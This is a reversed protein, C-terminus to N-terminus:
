SRIRWDLFWYTDVKIKQSAPLNIKKKFLSCHTVVTHFEGNEGCVDIGMQELEDVINRDLQLGLFREGMTDNCSVITCEIGEALMETVLAKREEQWLPLLPVVGASACVKEEWDRHPQLDIDGFVMHTVGFEHKVRELTTIFNKEYDGWSTPTAILPVNLNAAQENLLSAPLGHSRSIKGNENMMNVVVALEALPTSRLRRILAFCSDKGGSWSCALRIPTENKVAELQM